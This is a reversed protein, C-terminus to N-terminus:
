STIPLCWVNNTHRLVQSRAANVLGVAQKVLLAAM